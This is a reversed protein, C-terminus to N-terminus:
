PAKEPHKEFLMALLPDEFEGVSPRGDYGREPQRHGWDSIQRVRQPLKGEKKLRRWNMLLTGENIGFEHALNTATENTHWLRILEDDTM